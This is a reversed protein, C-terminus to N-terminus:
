RVLRQLIMECLPDTDVAGPQQLVGLHTFSLVVTDDVGALRGRRVAVVGDGLGRIVEDLDALTQDLHPAVMGVVDSRATARALGARLEDVQRRTFPGGTGLFISYRVQPNRERANLQRLFVSNPRLDVASESLGEEIATYFRSVQGRDANLIQNLLGQGFAFQALLSGQNPTAVMILHRVNGPDLLPDEIALRAVLGGMSHAVLAVRRQPQASRIRRLERSLQEASDAIPQDDPYGYTGALVGRGRLARALPEFRAPSSHFGHVVLVLLQQPDSQEWHGPAHLGYRGAAEARDERAVRERIRRTLQRRRALVAAEDVTVLLHEQVADSEPVIEIGIDPALCLNVAGILYRSYAQRLDLTGRPLKDRLTSDDLHGVQMLARLVDRWAIQGHCAPIQLYLRHQELDRRVVLDGAPRDGAPEEGRGRGAGATALLTLGGLWVTWKAGSLGSTGRM